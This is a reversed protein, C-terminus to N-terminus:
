LAVLEVGDELLYCVYGQTPKNTIKKVANVYFSVQTNHKDSYNRSSKYDLVYYHDGKDLLLDLYRLNNKYKLPQEKSIKAGEVLALFEKHQVLTAVRKEIDAVAEEELVFGYKNLMMDKAHPIAEFSFSEMMELMYHMALGFHIASLDEEQTDEVALIDSQTGYYLEEYAFHQPPQTNTKNQKPSVLVGRTGLSLGLLEFTSKEPKQIVFLNRKARTFAVYLANLTDERVLKQEKQLAEKYASDIADRGATRLYIHKLDIGDYEYIIADRSPPTKKLRDLVIVHEFELGKSKHVTLVRVGHLESSAASEAIREYEFLLAEIDDFGRVLDLFRLTNFDGDFLKYEEIAHQIIEFLSHTNINPVRIEYPSQELLAFFNYKAIAEHFYIYKLYELLAQVSKQNVLLTTTETVVEIGASELQQQIAEGDGNTACLIAIDDLQAGVRLLEEVKQQMAELLNEEKSVEVYGGNNKEPVKQEQYKPMIKAFTENVFEVVEKQSRYNVKLPEIHTNNEKAVVDFLASVGGRFRYISQKVDGVFFFSGDQFIGEGSTIEAILPQLIKYQLISTDQFEDLLIHEITADLRFYLFESEQLQHLITYVLQTVDNFGLENEEKYLAKKAKKYLTVLTQMAYFFNSERARYYEKLAEQIRTLVTDMEPTFCKKFVWYELTEKQVWTKARLEEFSQCDVQKKLTASAGKCGAVIKQLEKLADMAANEYVFLNKQSFALGELQDQKEYFQELLTFIDGFRKNSELALTILMEKNGSVSVEQLFRHLLKLEHQSAQTNFDPMLSVYLSFKRLIQTFFSDITMIKTNSQLFEALIKKRQALLEEKSLGTVNTIEKLEDERYELDELTEIIRESMESAAKNTFTLALIKSSQAGQFLLSLYRVVLMFTKGSGASAEYALNKIFM